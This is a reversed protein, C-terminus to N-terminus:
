WKADIEVAVIVDPDCKGIVNLWKEHEENEQLVNSMILRFRHDGAERTSQKVTKRGILTYPYIMYLQRAIVFALGAMMAWDWWRGHFFIAYVVGVAAAVAATFVRPFDWGRIYWHPHKSFNLLTGSILWLAALALVVQLLVHMERWGSLVLLRMRNHAVVCSHLFTSLLVRALTSPPLSKSVGHANRYCGRRSKGGM